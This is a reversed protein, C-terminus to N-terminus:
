ILHTYIQEIYQRRLDLDAGNLQVIDSEKWRWSSISYSFNYIDAMITKYFASNNMGGTLQIGALPPPPPPSLADVKQM